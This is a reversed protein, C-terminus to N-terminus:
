GSSIFYFDGGDMMPAVSLRAHQNIQMKEEFLQCLISSRQFVGWYGRIQGPVLVCQVCSGCVFIAEM